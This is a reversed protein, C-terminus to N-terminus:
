KKKKYKGKCFEVEGGSTDFDLAPYIKIKKDIDKYAIGL